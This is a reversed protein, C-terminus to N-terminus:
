YMITTSEKTKRQKLELEDDLYITNYMTENVYHTPAAAAAAPIARMINFMKYQIENEKM